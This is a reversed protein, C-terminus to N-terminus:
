EDKKEKKNKKEKKKLFYTSPENFFSEMINHTDNMAREIAAIRDKSNM